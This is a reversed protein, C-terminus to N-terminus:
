GEHGVVDWQQHEQVALAMAVTGADIPRGRSFSGFGVEEELYCYDERLCDGIV